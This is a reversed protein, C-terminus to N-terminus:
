SGGQAQEHPDRGAEFAKIVLHVSASVLVGAAAFVVLAVIARTPGQIRGLPGLLAKFQPVLVVAGLALVPFGLVLGKILLPCSRGPNRLLIVMAGLVGLFGAGALRSLFILDLPFQGLSRGSNIYRVYSLVTCAVISGAICALALGPGESFRGRAVYIGTIAAALVVLEFGFMLWDPPTPIVLIAIAAALSTIAIAASLLGIAVRITKSIPYM